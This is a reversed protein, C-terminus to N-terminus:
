YNYGSRRLLRMLELQSHTDTKLLVHAIHTRAISYALHLRDAARRTTDGRLLLLALRAEARTLHFQARLLDEDGSSQLDQEPDDVFVIAAARSAGVALRPLRSVIAVLSTREVRHIVAKESRDGIRDAAASHVLRHLHEADAPRPTSLQGAATLVLSRDRLLAEGLGNAHILSADRDVLFAAQRIVEMLARIDDGDSTETRLRRRYQVARQLHPLLAQFRVHDETGFEPDARPRFVTWVVSVPGSVVLNTGLAHEMGQPRFWENYIPERVWQERPLVSEVHLPGSRPMEGVM